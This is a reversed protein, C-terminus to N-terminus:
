DDNGGDDEDGPTTITIFGEDWGIRDLTYGGWVLAFTGRPLAHTSRQAKRAMKASARSDFAGVVTENWTDGNKADAKSAAGVHWLLWVKPPKSV